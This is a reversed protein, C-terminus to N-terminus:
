SFAMTSSPCELVVASLVIDSELTFISLATSELSTGRARHSVPTFVSCLIIRAAAFDGRTSVFSLASRSEVEEWSTSFGDEEERMESEGAAVTPEIM